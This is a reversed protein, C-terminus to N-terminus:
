KGDYVFYTGDKVVVVAPLEPLTVYQFFHNGILGRFILINKFLCFRLIHCHPYFRGHKRDINVLICKDAEM